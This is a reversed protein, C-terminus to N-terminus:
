TRVKSRAATKTRAAPGNGARKARAPGKLVVGAEPAHLRFTMTEELYLHVLGRDHHLYGLSADRGVVLEFDGGRLSVVLAGELVPAWVVPGELLRMVHKVVPYGGAGSTKALGTYATSGLALAYPGEVGARRLDEMAESVLAPFETFDDGMVLAPRAPETCIGRIGAEPLGHFICRDEVGALCRAADRAPDLDPDPANRDVADLEDLTLAFDARLELLPQVERACAQVGTGPSRIASVRGTGIASHEWGLPGTFDALKRGALHCELAGRAEAEIRKWAADSVPALERHLDNM